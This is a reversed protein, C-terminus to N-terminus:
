PNPSLNLQSPPSDLPTSSSNPLTLLRSSWVPTGPPSCQPYRPSPMISPLNARLPSLISQSALLRPSLRSPTKLYGLYVLLSLPLLWRLHRLVLLPRNPHQDRLRGRDQNWPRQHDLRHTLCRLHWTALNQKGLRPPGLHQSRPRLLPPYIKLRTPSLPLRRLSRPRYEKLRSLRSFTHNAGTVAKTKSSILRVRASSCPLYTKGGLVRVAWEGFKQEM